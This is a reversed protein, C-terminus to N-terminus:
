KRWSKVLQYQVYWRINLGDPFVNRLAKQYALLEPSKRYNEFAKQDEFYLISLHEPYEWERRVEPNKLGTDLFFNYGKIGPLMMILPALVNFGYENLWKNYKGQDESRLRYAELHIFSANDIVTGRQSNNPYQDKKFSRILEYYGAWLYETIGKDRWTKVDAVLAKYDPTSVIRHHASLNERHFYFFFFPYQPSPNVIEYRDVGYTGPFSNQLPLYAEVCWNLYRAALEPDAGPTIQNASIALLPGNGM